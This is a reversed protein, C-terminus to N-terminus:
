GRDLLARKIGVLAFGAVLLILTIRVWAAQTLLSLKGVNPVATVVEPVQASDIQLQWPDPAPNNDGQTKVVPKGDRYSVDIVRHVYRDGAQAGEGVGTSATLSGGQPVPLIIVDGVAIQNAPLARTILLDGPGFTPEMSPSLVPAFALRFAVVIVAATIATLAVLALATGSLIRGVRRMTWSRGPTSAAHRATATATPAAVDFDITATM